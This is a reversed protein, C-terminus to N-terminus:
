RIDYGEEKLINILYQNILMLEDHNQKIAHQNNLFKKISDPTICTNGDINIVDINKQLPYQTLKPLTIPPKVKPPQVVKVTEVQHAACSAIM